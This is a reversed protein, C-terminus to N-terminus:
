TMRKCSTLTCRAGPRVMNVTSASSAREAIFPAQPGPKLLANLEASDEEEEDEEDGEVVVERNHERRKCPIAAAISGPPAKSRTTMRTARGNSGGADTVASAIIDAADIDAAAAVHDEPNESETAEEDVAM